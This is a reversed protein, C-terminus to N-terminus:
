QALTTEDEETSRIRYFRVGDMYRLMQLIYRLPEKDKLRETEDLALRYHATGEAESVCPHAASDYGEILDNHCRM